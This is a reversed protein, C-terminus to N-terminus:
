VTPDFRMRDAKLQKHQRAHCDVCLTILNQEADDGLKSRSRLHHVQLNNLSGCTQCRWGDRELVSEHLRRYEVPNLRLRPKKSPLRAVADGLM